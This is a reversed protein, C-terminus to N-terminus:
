QRGSKHDVGSEFSHFRVSVALGPKNDHLNIKAEHLDAIAKVLALGLGNGPKSRSQELRYFPKFVKERENVPIGPGTDSIALKVNQDTKELVIAINAGAPSHNLANEILNVVMQTLLEKDGRISLDPAIHASIQQDNDEAVAEFSEVLRALLASLDVPVFRGRVSGTEIQGIRLLANFTALIEDTERIAGDLAQHCGEISTENQRAGELKQRLRGLPTRLDHAIDNTVQKVNAMLQEIRVLMKNINGALQDLEDGSGRIPLRLSFDGAMIGHTSATLKTIRRMSIWSMLAGGLFALVISLGLAWGLSQLLIEQLDQIRQRRVGITLSLDSFRTGQMLGPVTEKDQHGSEDDQPSTQIQPLDIRSWGEVFSIQPLNGAIPQGSKDWLEYFFVNSGNRTTREKIDDVLASVGNSHYIDFLLAREHTIRKQLQDRFEHDAAFYVAGLLIIISLWFTLAYYISLRFPTNRVLRKMSM